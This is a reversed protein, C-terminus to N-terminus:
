SPTNIPVFIRGTWLLTISLFGAAALAFPIVPTIFFTTVTAGHAMLAGALIPGGIAGVRGISHAFGTGVSRIATPYLLGVVANMGLQAGLIVFGMAFVLFHIAFYSLHPSSLLISVICGFIAYFVLTIPGIFDISPGVVLGGFIGGVYYLSATASAQAVSLGIEHLVLTLDSNIFFNVLMIAIFVFWLTPTILRLKDEFLAGVRFRDLRREDLLYISELNFEAEPCLKRLWKVLEPKRRPELALLKLSEPLYIYLIPTVVLPIAGGIFFLQQWSRDVIEAGVVGPIIGGVTIGMFAFATFAGRVKKPLLEALLATINPYLGGLGVGTFFRFILLESLSRATGSAFTAVSIVVCAILIGRKRGLKDGIFGNALAGILVGVLASSFVPSMQSRHIGFEKVIGPAAIGIVGLDYGDSMMSLFCLFFVTLTFLRLPQDDVLKSINIVNNNTM